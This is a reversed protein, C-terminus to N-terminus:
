FAVVTQDPHMGAAAYMARLEEAAKFTGDANLNHWELTRIRSRAAVRRVSTKPSTSTM